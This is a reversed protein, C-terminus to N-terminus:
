KPVGWRLAVVARLFQWVAADARKRRCLSRLRRQAPKVNCLGALLLGLARPGAQAALAAEAAELAREVRPGKARGPTLRKGSNM